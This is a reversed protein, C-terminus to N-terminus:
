DDALPGYGPRRTLFAANVAIDPAYVEDMWVTRSFERVAVSIEPQASGLADAVAKAILDTLDLKEAESHGEALKIMVHPM